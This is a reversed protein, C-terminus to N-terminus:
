ALGVLKRARTGASEGTYLFALALFGLLRFIAAELLMWGCMVWPDVDSLGMAALLDNGSGTCGAAVDAPSCTFALGKLEVVSAAKVGFAPFSIQQIWRFPAPVNEDAIFFGNFLSAFVLLVTSIGNGMAM